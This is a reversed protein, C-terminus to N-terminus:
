TKVEKEFWEDKPIENFDDADTETLSDSDFDIITLGRKTWHLRFCSRHEVHRSKVSKDVRSFDSFEHRGFRRTLKKLIGISVLLKRSAAAAKVNPLSPRSGSM